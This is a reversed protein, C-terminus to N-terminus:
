KAGIRKKSKKKAKKKNAEQKAENLDPMSVGICQTVSKMLAYQEEFGKLDSALKKWGGLKVSIENGDEDFTKAEQVKFDQKDVLLRYAMRCMAALDFNTESFIQSVKEGYEQKLWIGDELTWPRLTYSKGSVELKSAKPKLDIIDM